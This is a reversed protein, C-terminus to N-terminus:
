NSRTCSAPAVARCKSAKSCSELGSCAGSWLAKLRIRWSWRKMLDMEVVLVGSAGKSEAGLIREVSDSDRSDCVHGIHSHCPFPESVSGSDGLASRSCSSSHSSSELAVDCTYPCINLM